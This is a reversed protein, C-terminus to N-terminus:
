RNGLAKAAAALRNRAVQRRDLYVAETRDFLRLSEQWLRDLAPGPAASAAATLQRCYAQAFHRFREANQGAVAALDAMGREDARRAPHQWFAAVARHIAVGDARLLALAQGPSGDAFAAAEARADPDEDPAQDALIAEVEGPALPALRLLRCRSRITPPVRAMSHAVLILVAGAPPEEVAKLLANAGARNIRDLADVVVVRRGGEGATRRLFPAVGRVADVPIQDTRGGAASEDLVLLDAHGGAAVRRFTPHDPSLALTAPPTSGLLDAGAAAGAGSSALLYRAFRFALTAKGIGRPGLLLWAHPLRGGAVAALMATEAAGHGVFGATRRPPTV